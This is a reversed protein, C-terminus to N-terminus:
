APVLLHNLSLRGDPRLARKRALVDAVWLVTALKALESPQAVFPGMGLWRTSGGRTVGIGPVVVLVLGVVAVLILVWSLRRWVNPDMRAALWFAPVGVLAWLAQRRLIGFADGSEAGDVVSASFSMTLGIVLLLGVVITLLLAEQGMPGSTAGRLADRIREGVTRRPALLDSQTLSSM